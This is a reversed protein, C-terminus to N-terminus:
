ESFSNLQLLQKFRFSMFIMPDRNGRRLNTTVDVIAEVSGNLSSVDDIVDILDSMVAQQDLNLRTQFTDLRHILRRFPLKRFISLPVVFV